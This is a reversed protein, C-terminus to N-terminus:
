SLQKTKRLYTKKNRAVVPIFVLDDLHSKYHRHEHGDRLFLPENEAVFALPRGGAGNKTSPSGHTGCKAGHWAVSCACQYVVDLSPVMGIDTVGGTPHQGSSFM